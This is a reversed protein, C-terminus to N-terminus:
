KWSELSASEWDEDIGQAEEKNKKYGEVLLRDLEARKMKRLKEKLTDAIFRSKNPISSLEKSLDDPLTINWRKM